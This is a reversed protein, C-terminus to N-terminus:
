GLTTNLYQVFLLMLKKRDEVPHMKTYTIFQRRARALEALSVTRGLCLAEEVGPVKIAEGPTATKQAAMVCSTVEQTSQDLEFLFNTSSLPQTQTSQNPPPPRTLFLAAFIDEHPPADQPLVTIMPSDWRNSSNPAEYRAVLGDFVERTYQEEEPRGQNWGWAEEIPAPCQVLCQTTKYQKTACYLEYRFGKIYNLADLIVVDEKSLRRLVEAKLRGRVEKEKQSNSFVGNKDEGVAENESVITVKKGKETELHEKIERARRTKGSSPFGSLLVLPM